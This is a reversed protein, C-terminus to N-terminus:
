RDAIPQSFYSILFNSVWNALTALSAQKARTRYSFSEGIWVWIGPAWTSAYGLIFLCTSVILLNGVPQLHGRPHSELLVQLPMSSYGSRSGPQVIILPWRSRGFRELIYLGLFTCAFNVAGIIIQTM